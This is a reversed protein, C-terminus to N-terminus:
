VLMSMKLGEASQGRPEWCCRWVYSKLPSASALDALAAETELQEAATEDLTQLGM